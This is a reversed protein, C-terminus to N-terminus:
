TPNRPPSLINKIAILHATKSGNIERLVYPKLNHFQSM